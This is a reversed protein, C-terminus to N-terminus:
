THDSELMGGDSICQRIMIRLEPEVALISVEETASGHLIPVWGSEIETWTGPPSDIAVIACGSVQIQVESENPLTVLYLRSAPERYIRTSGFVDEIMFELMTELGELEPPRERALLAELQTLWRYQKILEEYDIELEILINPM